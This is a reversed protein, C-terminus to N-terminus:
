NRISLKLAAAVAFPAFMLSFVMIAGLLALYGAIPMGMVGAQVAGAGFILVPIYLPLVLLSILVGGKRLGVTLGAGIAGILSLTPTGLLLSSVLALIAQTPLFLMVALLPSLLALLFGSMLWHSFVKGLALLVLSQPSVLVQELTGDDFDNKFLGDMSLLTALLAAVWIIGPAITSLVSADPSVALPFLAIVIVFFALPNVIDNRNRFALLLDRQLTHVFFSM